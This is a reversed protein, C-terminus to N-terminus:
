HNEQQEPQLMTLSIRGKKVDVQDVWVTVVDGLAVVDLPHKVFGKKLKSIHVLGDQKVGIDVFAGFDVVNRVTGQLEMGKQLDDMKLVDQKLLPKSLEDRPDRGPRILAEVIDKMTHIGTGIEEAWQEPTKEMVKSKLEESGIDAPTAKMAKLMDKVFSYQEPHIPTRDLPNKGDTIRLFGICQEYTKAGLRPIKKLQTRDTFKGAEDRQKVVNQAVTKSLGAVYQLLAPSATNVNVGVQNVATEVVFTLSENLKKQSVDHQYQGVGVSKPDIKVLEALPDQLRRAISVASREEVQLDPFEERAIESASYVSAGAENVILYFIEKSLGKLQEAVFLETERSATGNGIAVLEIDYDKLTKQFIAAAKSPDSKTHPYIVGVKLMKGTEDVVALKCGTRYAPDVGLVKKGKLPAQLLLNRLNESFIHIAQNEGKETLENRIEREISPQILRRYGDDIAEEVIAATISHPFKIMRRTLEKVLRDSDPQISVRLVEEKEGRNLALVRHPVIKHVPEEYDYYMEFIGKEDKENKKVQSRIKGHRFTEKRIYERFAPEDAVQEAIIDKAGAIAEEISAVEKEESVYKEAEKEVSGNKPYSTLWVALPELGKEKAVTARTRRKQKFPRYLDELVQLKAAKKISASLEETLKGQEEILRMVETKREELNQLYKWRDDIEKIQVEDLAGTMEKRYRAIFPVTNGENLLQIVQEVQKHNISTERALQNLLHQNLESSM